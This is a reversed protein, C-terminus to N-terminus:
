SVIRQGILAANVGAATWAASTNPDTQAIDVQHQYSGAAAVTTGNVVTANSKLVTSFTRTTADDKRFISRVQVASIATPIGSLSTIGYLDTLGATAGAVYTTDGDCPLERVQTYDTTGSNPTFQKQSDSAPVLTQVRREGERTSINSVYMDDYSGINTLTPNGEPFGIGVTDIATSGTNGNFSSAVQLGDKYFSLRGTSSNIVVELELYHWAGVTLITTDQIVPTANVDGATVYLQLGSSLCISARATGSPGGSLFQVIAHSYVGVDFRDVRYAVGISLTSVGTWQAWMINNNVGYTSFQVAQNGFRGAVLGIGGAPDHLVYVGQLGYSTTNIDPYTDFGDILLFRSAM